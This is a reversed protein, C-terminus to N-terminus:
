GSIDAPLVASGIFQLGNPAKLFICQMKSLRLAGLPNKARFSASVAIYHFQPGQPMLPLGYLTVGGMGNVRGVMPLVQRTVPDNYSFPEALQFSGPDDLKSKFEDTCAKGEVKESFHATVFERYGTTDEDGTQASAFGTLAVTCIAIIIKSGM